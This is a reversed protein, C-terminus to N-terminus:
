NIADSRVDREEDYPSDDDSTTDEDITVEYVEGDEEFAFRELESM